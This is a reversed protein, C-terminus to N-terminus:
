KETHHSFTRIENKQMDSETEGAGSISSGTKTGTYIRADKRM